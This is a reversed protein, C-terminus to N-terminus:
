KNCHFNILTLQIKFKQNSLSVCKKHSSACVLKALLLLFLQKIFRFM